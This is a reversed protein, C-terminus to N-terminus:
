GATEIRETVDLWRLAQVDLEDDVKQLESGVEGFHQLRIL